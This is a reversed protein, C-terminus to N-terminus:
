IVSRGQTQLRRGSILQDVAVRAELEVAATRRHCIKGGHEDAGKSVGIGDYPMSKISNILDAM